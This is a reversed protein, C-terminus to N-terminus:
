HFIGPVTTPFDIKKKGPNYVATGLNDRLVLSVIKGAMCQLYCGKCLPLYTQIMAACDKTLCPLKATAQGDQGKKKLETSLLAKGPRSDMFEDARIAECRFHLERCAMDFTVTGRLQESQLQSYVSQLSQEHRIASLLYGLKQQETLIVASAGPITELDEILEVLRLCFVSANEDRKLRLHALEGLLITATQPGSFVYGNHLLIYAEHGNWKAAQRLYKSALSGPTVADELLFYVMKNAEKAGPINWITLLFDEELVHDLQHLGLFRQFARDWTKWSKSMGDFKPLKFTSLLKSNTLPVQTPHQYAYPNYGPAHPNYGISRTPPRSVSFVMVLSGPAVRPPGQITSDKRLLEPIGGTLLLTVEEPDLGFISGADEMLQVIGM